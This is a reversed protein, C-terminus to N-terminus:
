ALWRRQAIIEGVGSAALFASGTTMQRMVGTVLTTSPSGAEGAWTSHSVIPAPPGSDFKVYSPGAM